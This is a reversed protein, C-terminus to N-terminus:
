AIDRLRDAMTALGVPGLNLAATHWAKLDFDAGRRAEAEARAAIWAREGLKYSIAQGPWGCFRVVEPHVRHEATRGRTRLVDCAVEFNWRPGHRRAEAQPLPLELHLGLDIVVRAARMASAKLMGLRTGPATNWGLEDALREAYLAWGEGHGSVFSIKAFRSLSDGVVKTQGTQLHHGPVAEHFVTTQEGWLAFRERGGVPWWTRGPRSLDESAETYYPSGAASGFALNVEVRMLRPDIDFHVGSLAALATDHREQLWDRYADASDVVETDNLHAVAEDVSAGPLIENAEAAMEEELRHLEEWGWDYADRLDIDAGLFQRAAIRYRQEGVADAEAAHPAYDHRLYRALETYAAHGAAAARELEARLPGDGYEDVVADFTATAAYNQAQAACELAQRRAAVVGRAIGTDLTTRFTDFMRPVAALRDILHRWQEESGRPAADIYGHLHFVMGYPAMLPRMWEGADYEALEAELREALHAAALRDADNAPELAALRALVARQSEAREAVADPGYDTVVGFDGTVDIVTKALVPDQRAM